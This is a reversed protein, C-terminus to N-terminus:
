EERPKEIPKFTFAWVWRNDKWADPGHISNWLYEFSKKALLCGKFPEDIYNRIAGEAIADEESIDQIREARVDKILRYTRALSGYMFRGALRKCPNGKRNILKKWEQDSLYVETTGTASPDSFPKNDASYVGGIAGGFYWDIQYGEAVYVIDGPQHPPKIYTVDQDFGGDESCELRGDRLLQCYKPQVRMIRRSQTKLPPDAMLKRVNDPTFTMPKPKM